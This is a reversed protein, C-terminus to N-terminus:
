LTYRFFPSRDGMDLLEQETYEARIEEESKERMLKDKKENQRKCELRLIYAMVISLVSMALSVGFGTRYKPKERELYINSGM